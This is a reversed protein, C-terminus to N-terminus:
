LSPTPVSLVTLDDLDVTSDAGTSVVVLGLTVHSWFASLALASGVQTWATPMAGGVGVGYYALIFGPVARIRVWEQGTFSAFAGGATALIANTDQRYISVDRTQQVLVCVRTGATAADSLELTVQTGVVSPGAALRVAVDVYSPSPLARRISPGQYAVAATRYATGAPNSLRAVGATVAATGGVGGDATFGTAASFDYATTAAGSAAIATDVYLKTTAHDDAAPEGLGSIVEGDMNLGHVPKNLETVALAGINDATIPDSGGTAHSAAHAAPASPAPVGPVFETGNHVLTQGITAGLIRLAEILLARGGGPRAIEKM